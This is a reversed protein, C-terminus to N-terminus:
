ACQKPITANQSLPILGILIMLLGKLLQAGSTFHQLDVVDLIGNVFLYLGYLRLGVIVWDNRNM